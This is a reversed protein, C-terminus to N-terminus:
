KEKIPMWCQNKNGNLHIYDLNVSSYFIMKINFWNNYLIKYCDIKKLTIYYLKTTYLYHIKIYKKVVIREIEKIKNWRNVRKFKIIRIKKEKCM